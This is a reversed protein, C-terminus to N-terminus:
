GGTGAESISQGGQEMLHILEMLSSFSRREGSVPFYASGQWEREERGTVTIECIPKKQM